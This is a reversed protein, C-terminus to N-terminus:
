AEAAQGSALHFRSVVSGELLGFGGRREVVGVDAGDELDVLCVVSLEVEDHRVVLALRELFPDRPPWAVEIVRDVDGGLDTQPQGFRMARADHM